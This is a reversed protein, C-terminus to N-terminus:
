QLRRNYWFIDVIEEAPKLTIELIQRPPHEPLDARYRSPTGVVTAVLPDAFPFDYAAASTVGLLSIASGPLLFLLLVATRRRIFL